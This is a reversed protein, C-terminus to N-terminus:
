INFNLNRFFSNFIEKTDENNGVNGEKYNTIFNTMSATSDILKKAVILRESQYGDLTKIKNKDRLVGVLKEALSAADHIGANMNAGGIPSFVHLADGCLFVRGVKAHDAIRDYFNAGTEWAVQKITGGVPCRRDLINQFFEAANSDNISYPGDFSAIIRYKYESLPAFLVYGDEGLFYHIKISEFSHSIDADILKFHSNLDRQNSNIKLLKRVTSNAGDCGIVYKFESKNVEDKADRTWVQVRNDNQSLEEVALGRDIKKGYKELLNILYREVKIQELHYFFPFKHHYEDCNFEALINNNVYVNLSSINLGSKWFGTEIGIKEFIELTQQAVNIARPLSTSSDRKDIIQFDIGNMALMCALVLGSPGAGVILVEPNNM